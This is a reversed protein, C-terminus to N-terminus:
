LRQIDKDFRRKGEIVNVQQDLSRQVARSPGTRQLVMNGFM